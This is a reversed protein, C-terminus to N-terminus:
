TSNEQDNKKHLRAEIMFAISLLFGLVLLGVVILNTYRNEERAFGLERSLLILVDFEDALARITLLMYVTYVSTATLLQFRSLKAGVFYAALLYAFLGTIYSSLISAAADRSVYLFEILEYKTLGELLDEPM